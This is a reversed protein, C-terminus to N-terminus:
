VSYHIKQSSWVRVPVIICLLIGVDCRSPARRPHSLEPERM